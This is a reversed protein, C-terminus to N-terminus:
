RDLTHILKYSLVFTSEYSVYNCVYSDVFTRFYRRLIYQVKTSYITNSGVSTCAHIYSTRLYMCAHVYTAVKLPVLTRLVYPVFSIDYQVEPLVKTRFYKRVKTRFYKSLVYSRLVYCSGATLWSVYNRLYMSCVVYTSEVYTTIYTAVYSRLYTTKCSIVYPVYTFLKGTRTSGYTYCKVKSSIYIHISIIVM